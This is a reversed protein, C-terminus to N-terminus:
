CAAADQADLQNVVGQSIVNVNGAVILEVGARGCTRVEALTQATAATADVLLIAAHRDGALGAAVLGWAWGQQDRGPVLVYGRTRLTPPTQLLTRAIAIATTERGAGAVRQDAGIRDYLAASVAGPGGLVVIDIGAASVQSLFDDTVTAVSNSGILVLPSGLYSAVAGASVSDAWAASGNEAGAPGLGRAVLVHPPDTPALNMVEIAIVVSTEYRDSGSLRKVNFSMARLQQETSTAIAGPGGVIYITGDNRMVRSLEDRVAPALSGKPTLLLPGYRTLGSAALADAFTDDRALIAVPATRSSPFRSKSVAIAAATPTPQAFRSIGTVNWTPYQGTPDPSPSDPWGIDLLMAHTIPGLYQDDEGSLGAPSMQSDATRALYETEDLHYMSSGPEYSSPAYIVPVDSCALTRHPGCIDPRAKAAARALPGTWVVKNSTFAAFMAPSGDALNSLRTGDRLELHTAWADIAGQERLSCKSGQCTIGFGGPFGLGHIVEHVMTGIFDYRLPRTSGFAFDWDIDSNIVTAVDAAGPRLDSGAIANALAVPRAVKNADVIWDVPSASALLAEGQSTWTIDVVIPVTSGITDALISEVTLMADRAAQPMGSPFQFVLDVGPATAAAAASAGGLPALLSAVMTAATWMSRQRM